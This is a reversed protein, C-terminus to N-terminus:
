HTIVHRSTRAAVKDAVRLRGALEALMKRGVSPASHLLTAFEARNLVLVSM